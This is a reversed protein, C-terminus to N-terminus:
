MCVYGFAYMYVCIDIEIYEGVWGCRCVYAWIRLGGRKEKGRDLNVEVGELAGGARANVKHFHHAAVVVLCQLLGLLIGRPRTPVLLVVLLSVFILPSAAVPSGSSLSPIASCRM